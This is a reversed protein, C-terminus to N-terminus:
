LKLKKIIRNTNQSYNSFILGSLIFYLGTGLMAISSGSVISELIVDTLLILGFLVIRSKTQLYLKAMQFIKLIFYLYFISAGLVGLQTILVAMFSENAEMEASNETMVGALYGASGLGDGLLSNNYVAFIVSKLHNGSATNSELGEVYLTALTFFIFISIFAISFFVIKYIRKKIQVYFVVIGITLFLLILSKSVCSIACTIMLVKKWTQKKKEAIFLYVLSIGIMHAAAIPDAIISVFRKLQPGFDWSYFNVYGTEYKAGNKNFFYRPYNLSDWLVYPEFQYMLLGILGIICLSIIYFRLYKVIKTKSSVISYGFYICMYPLLLQRISVMKLGFPAGPRILNFLFILAILFLIVKQIKGEYKFQHKFFFIAVSLYVILEKYLIILNTDWSTLSPSFVVLFINQFFTYLTFAYLVGIGGRFVFLLSFTFLVIHLVYYNQFLASFSIATLISCLIFSIENVRNQSKSLM